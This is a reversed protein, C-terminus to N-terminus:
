STVLFTRLIDMRASCSIMAALKMGGFSSPAFSIPACSPLECLVVRVNFIQHVYAVKIFMVQHTANIAQHLKLREMVGRVDGTNALLVFSDTKSATISANESQALRGPFLVPLM